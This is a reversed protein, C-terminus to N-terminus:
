YEKKGVELMRKILKLIRLVWEVEAEVYIMGVLVTIACTLETPMYVILFNKFYRDEYVNYVHM